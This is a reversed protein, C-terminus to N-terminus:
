IAAQEASRHKVNIAMASSKDTNLDTVRIFMQAKQGARARKSLESRVPRNDAGALLEVVRQEKAQLDIYIPEIDARPRGATKRLYGSIKLSCSSNGGCGVRVALSGTKLKKVKRLIPKKDNLYRFHTTTGVLGGQVSVTCTEKQGACVGTWRVVEAQNDPVATLTVPLGDSNPPVTCSKTCALGDILVQGPGQVEVTLGAVPDDAQATAGGALAILFAALALNLKANMFFTYESDFELM